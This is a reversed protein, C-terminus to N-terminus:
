LEIAMVPFLTNAAKLISPCVPLMAVNWPASSSRYQLSVDGTWIPLAYNLYRCIDLRGGLNISIVFKGGEPKLIDLSGGV